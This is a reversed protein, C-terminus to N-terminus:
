YLLFSYVTLLFCAFIVLLIGGMLIKEKPIPTIITETEAKENEEIYKEKYPIGSLHVGLNNKTEGLNSEAEKLQEIDDAFQKSVDADVEPMKNVIWKFLKSCGLWILYCFGFTLGVNFCFGLLVFPVSIVGKLAIFLMPSYVLM